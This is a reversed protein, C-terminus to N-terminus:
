SNNHYLFKENQVQKYFTSFIEHSKDKHRLFEVWTWESSDDAIILRYKNGNVFTTRVFSLLDIHLLELPRTSFDNKSSCQRVFFM